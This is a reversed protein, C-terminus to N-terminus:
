AHKLQLHETPQADMYNTSQSVFPSKAVKIDKTLAGGILQMLRDTVENENPLIKEPSFNQSKTPSSGMKTLIKSAKQQLTATEWPHIAGKLENLIDDFSFESM